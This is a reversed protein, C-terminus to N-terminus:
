EILCLPTELIRKKRYFEKKGYIIQDLNMIQPFPVVHFCHEKELICTIFDM